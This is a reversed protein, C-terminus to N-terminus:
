SSLVLLVTLMVLRTWFSAGVNLVVGESSAFELSSSFARNM